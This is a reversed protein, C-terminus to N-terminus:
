DFHLTVVRPKSVASFRRTIRGTQSNSGVFPVAGSPRFTEKVDGTRTDSFAQAISIVGTLDGGGSVVVKIAPPWLAHTACSCSSSEGRRRLRTLDPEGRTRAHSTMTIKPPAATRRRKSREVKQCKSRSEGSVRSFRVGPREHESENPKGAHAFSLSPLTSRSLRSPTM